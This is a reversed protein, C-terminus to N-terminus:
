KYAYKDINEETIEEMQKMYYLVAEHALVEFVDSPLWDMCFKPMGTEKDYEELHRDFIPQFNTRDLYVRVFYWIDDPVFKDKIMKM